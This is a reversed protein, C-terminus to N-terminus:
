RSRARTQAIERELKAVEQDRLTGPSMEMASRKANELIAISSKYAADICRNSLSVWRDPDVSSLAVVGDAYVFDDKGAYGGFGNKANVSGCAVNSEMYFQVGSFVASEPDRLTRRVEEEVDSKFQRAPKETEDRTPASLLDCAATSLLAIAVIVLNHRRM